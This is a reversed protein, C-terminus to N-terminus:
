LREFREQQRYMDAIALADHVSYAVHPRCAAWEAHWVKQRPKFPEGPMKVEIVFFRGPIGCLLDPVGDGVEALSQVKVGSARLADVIDAQNGDVKRAQRVM